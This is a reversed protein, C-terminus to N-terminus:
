RMCEWSTSRMTIMVSSINDEGSRTVVRMMGMMVVWFFLCFVWLKSWLSAMVVLFLDTRRRFGDCTASLSGIGSRIRVGLHNRDSFIKYRNFDVMPFLCDLFM